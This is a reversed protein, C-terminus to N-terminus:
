GQEAAVWLALQADDVGAHAEEIKFHACEGSVRVGGARGEATVGGARLSCLAGVRQRRHFRVARQPLRWGGGHGRPLRWGCGRGPGCGSTGGRVRILAKAEERQLHGLAGAAGVTRDM